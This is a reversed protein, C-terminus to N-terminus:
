WSFVLRFIIIEKLKPNISENWLYYVKFTRLVQLLAFRKFYSCPYLCKESTDFIMEFITNCHERQRRFMYLGDEKNATMKNHSRIVRIFLILIQNFFKNFLFYDSKAWIKVNKPCPIQYFYPLALPEFLNSLKKAHFNSRSIFIISVKFFFQSTFFTDYNEATM